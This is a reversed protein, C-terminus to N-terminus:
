PYVCKFLYRSVFIAFFYVQNESRSLCKRTVEAELNVKEDLSKKIYYRSFRTQGQKNVLLIYKIMIISNAEEFHLAWCASGLSRPFPQPFFIKLCFFELSVRKTQMSSKLFHTFPLVRLLVRNCRWIFKKSGCRCCYLHFIFSSKLM